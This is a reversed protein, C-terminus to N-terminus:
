KLFADFDGFSTHLIKLPFNACQARQWEKPVRYKQSHCTATRKVDMEVSHLDRHM